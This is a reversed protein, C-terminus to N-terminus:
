PAEGQAVRHRKEAAGPFARLATAVQFPDSAVVSQGFVEMAGIDATKSHLDGRDIIRVVFPFGDWDEATGALPPQYLALNFSQV